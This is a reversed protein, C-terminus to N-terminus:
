ARAYLRHVVVGRERLSASANWLEDEHWDSSLLVHEGPAIEGPTVVRFGSFSEGGRADDVVGAVPVALDERHELLSATHVGAGYLWVRRAGLNRCRASVERVLARRAAMMAGHNAPPTIWKAWLWALLSERTPGHLSLRSEIAAIADRPDRGRSLLESLIPQLVGDEADGPLSRWADLMAGAAILSQEPTVRSADGAHRSKHTYLVETVSGFDHRRALRLWLDYDQARDLREDYGGLAHVVSRRLMVSGHAVINGLVLRWRMERPDEPPRVTFAKAGSADLVDYASAVGGAGPHSEMWARQLRVRDPHCRDDADMRMVLEHSAERLGANLARALGAEGLEIIRVTGHREALSRAVRRTEEDSGNLILLIEALPETQRLLDGLAEPLSGGDRHVPLLASVPTM